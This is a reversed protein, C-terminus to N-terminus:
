IFKRFTLHFFIVRGLIEIRMIKVPQKTYFNTKNLISIKM